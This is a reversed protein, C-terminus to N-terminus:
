LQFSNKEGIEEFDINNQKLFTIFKEKIEM